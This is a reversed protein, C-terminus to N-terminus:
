SISSHSIERPSKGFQKKFSTSFYGINTFGCIESIETVTRNNARLLEMAYELRLNKIFESPSQDTLAKLKKYLLSPSINMESSFQEKNFNPNALHKRVIKIANQLFENNHNNALIQELSESSLMKILKRQVAERNRIISKIRQTLINMDFPKTFYDDAGLGLGHLQNDKENLATLLIVPVHSTEFTSKILQCLEFGNMKPMMIDTIVLDPLHKSIFEWAAIGDDAGFVKFERSLTSKLFNLLEKNDEVILIKMEHSSSNAHNQNSNQDLNISKGSKHFPLYSIKNLPRNLTSITKHPIEIRFTSGTNKQSECSISGNHASVYKKALLLGIGSGVIKSNNSNDGRYFERFIMRQAKKSIGIGDDKVKLVWKNKTCNLNIQVLGKPHSYKIANSILNDITKEIKQVDVATEYIECDSDFVLTIEHNRAFSEFMVIRNSVLETINIMSFSITEKGIDIKQFDMLQTVVSSLRQAQENALYLFKKGLESLNNEKYLEEIPAKILTLSTRIDHATNTFFRVKEETHVRKLRNIYLLQLLVFLGTLIVLILAIFWSARWFPPILSLTLTRESIVQTLSSDLLRIKLKFSGSPLNTYTITRNESPISWTKDFGEIKWSFKTGMAAGVPIIEFNLNNQSYKLKLSQLSDVPASLHFSPIERVSRGSIVIDQIFIRGNVPTETILEPNFFIAGKNTGWALQKNKLMYPSSINFSVGALPLISSFTLVKNNKPEFRCLGNETGLWLFDDDSISYISNIFNSPLGSNTTFNEITGKKYDFRVLGDGSTCIWAIDGTVLLDNVFLDEQLRKVKGTKKDLISIGYVCGLLIQGKEVEYFTNVPENSYIKFREEKSMFCAFNGNVGGLWIDGESDKYISFIYDTFEPSGEINQAYHALEEGTKEDIVYVGSSYSGAWIRGQNDECISLFVQAQELNNNYFNRWNDTLPQWCSIGNNTAFWLKGEEDEIICNVDNNALSNSNYNQHIIQNTLSSPQDFFSVGGSITCIWVRNNHDCFIDYVGNGRITTQDYSNEKYVNIVSSENKNLEWIGQGDVGVLLTSDSNPEIALIPQKTYFSAFKSSCTDSDFSYLFLGNSLTGLWLKRQDKDLYTASYEYPIKSSNKHVWSFELTEINFLWFGGPEAILLNQEDYWVTCYRRESINRILELKGSQYKFFGLSTSIWYIGSNDLIINFLLLTNNEIVKRLNIIIDFQDSIANYSFVQGNNTYAILKSAEYTLKVTIVDSTEFPLYYIRYSEDTLRLIGTKCSAWIFGNNDECIDNAARISIGFKSNISYFKAPASLTSLSALIIIIILQFRIIM